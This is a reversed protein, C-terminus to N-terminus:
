FFPSPHIEAFRIRRAGSHTLQDYVQVYQANYDDAQRQKDEPRIGYRTSDDSVTHVLFTATQEVGDSDIYRFDGAPIDILNQVAPDIAKITM